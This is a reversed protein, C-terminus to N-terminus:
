YNQIENTSRPKITSLYFAGEVSVDVNLIESLIDDVQCRFM